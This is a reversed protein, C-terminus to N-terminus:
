AEGKMSVGTSAREMQGARHNVDVILRECDHYSQPGSEPIQIVRGRYEKPISWEEGWHWGTSILPAHLEICRVQRGGIPITRVGKVNSWPSVAKRLGTYLTMGTESIRIFNSRAGVAFFVALVGEYAYRFWPASGGTFWGDAAWVTLILVFFAAFVFRIRRSYTDHRGPWLDPM